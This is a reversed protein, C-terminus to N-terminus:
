LIICRLDSEQQTVKYYASNFISNLTDKLINTDYLTVDMKHQVNRLPSFIKKWIRDPMHVNILNITEIKTNHTGEDSYFPNDINLCADHVRIDELEVHKLRDLKFLSYIIALDLSDSNGLCIGYFGYGEYRIYHLHELQPLVSILVGHDSPVKKYLLPRRFTSRNGDLGSIDLSTINICQPLSQLIFHASKVDRLALAELMQMHSLTATDTMDMGSLEISKLSKLQLVANVVECNVSDGPNSNLGLSVHKLHLLRPLVSVMLELDINTHEFYRITLSTLHKCVPLHELVSRLSYMYQALDLYVSVVSNGEMGVLESAVIMKDNEFYIDPVHFTLKRDAANTYSLGQKMEGFSEYFMQYMQRAKSSTLRNRTERYQTIETDFNVVNTVHESLRCGVEPELGCVFMIMDSLKVVKDITSCHDHFLTFAAKGGCVIFLAAMFEQISKHFDVSVIESHLSCPAKTLSFIGAKLAFDLIHPGLNRQLKVKPFELCAEQVM